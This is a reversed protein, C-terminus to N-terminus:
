EADVEGQGPRAIVVYTHGRDRPASHDERDQRARRAAEMCTVTGAPGRPPPPAERPDVRTWDDERAGAGRPRVASRPGEPVPIWRSWDEGNVLLTEPDPGPTVKVRENPGVHTGDPARFCAGSVRVVLSGDGLLYTTRHVARPRKKKRGPATM